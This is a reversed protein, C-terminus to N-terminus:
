VAIGIKGNPPTLYTFPAMKQLSLWYPARAVNRAQVNSKILVTVEAHRADKGNSFACTYPPSISANDRISHCHFTDAKESSVFSELIKTTPVLPTM